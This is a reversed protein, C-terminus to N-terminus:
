IVKQISSVRNLGTYICRLFFRGAELLNYLVINELLVSYFLLFTRWFDGSDESAPDLASILGSLLNYFCFFIMFNFHINIM